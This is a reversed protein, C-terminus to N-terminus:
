NGDGQKEHGNQTAVATPAAKLCGGIPQPSLLPPEAANPLHRPVVPPQLHTISLAPRGRLPPEDAKWM